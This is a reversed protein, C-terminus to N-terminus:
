LSPGCPIRMPRIWCAGSCHQQSRCSVDLRLKMCSIVLSSYNIIGRMARMVHGELMSLHVPRLRQDGPVLLGDRGENSSDAGQRAAAHGSNEDHAPRAVVKTREFNRM